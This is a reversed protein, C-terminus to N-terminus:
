RIELYSVYLTKSGSGKYVKMAHRKPLKVEMKLFHHFHSDVSNVINYRLRVDSM